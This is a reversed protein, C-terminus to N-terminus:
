QRLLRDLPAQGLTKLARTLWSAEHHYWLGPELGAGAPLTLRPEPGALVYTRRVRRGPLKRVMAAPGDAVAHRPPGPAILMTPGSQDWATLEKANGPDIMAGDSLIVGRVHPSDALALGVNFQLDALLNPLPQASRDTLRLLAGADDIRLWTPSGITQRAKEAIRVAVRRWVDGVIVPGHFIRGVPRQGEAFVEARSARYAVNRATGDAATARCAEAIEHAWDQLDDDALVEGADCAIEVQHEHELALLLGHLRDCYQEVARFEQDLGLTTVEVTYRNGGRTMTLDPRRGSASAEEYSVTWGALTAFAATELTLCLHKFKTAVLERNAYIVKAERRLDPAEGATTALAIRAALELIQVVARSNTLPWWELRLLPVVGTRAANDALWTEGFFERVVNLAWALAASGEPTLQAEDVASAWGDWTLEPEM